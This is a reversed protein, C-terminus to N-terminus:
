KGEWFKRNQENIEQITPPKKYGGAVIGSAQDNTRGSGATAKMNNLAAQAGSASKFLTAATKCDLSIVDLDKGGNLGRLMAANASDATAFQSLCMRRSMCMRDITTARTAAADFTPVKFGPVLVEAQSMLETYGTHLAASDRTKADGTAGDDGEGDDEDDDGGDGTAQSGDARKGNVNKRNKKATNGTGPDDAPADSNGVAKGNADGTRIAKAIGEVLDTLTSIGEELATIRDHTAADTTRTSGGEEGSNHIHVHVAEGSDQTHGTEAAALEAVADQARQRLAELGAEDITARRTAGAGHHKIAMDEVGNLTTPSYARDGIACRPGCRGKEVLAIHNGILNYQQGAGQGLDNYDADYGASVEVKGKLIADITAKRTIMLDGLMVDADAGEGRRVNLVFGGSYKEFNTPDVDVPPHNDVVAAGMFSGMTKENFLADATREVYAVGNQGPKVPVEGPGYILWGVRALPVNMCLLNGNPLLRRNPGLEEVTYVPHDRAQAAMRSEFDSTRHRRSITM